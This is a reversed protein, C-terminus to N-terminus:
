LYLTQAACLVFCVNFKSIICAMKGDKIIINIIWRANADILFTSNQIPLIECLIIKLPAHGIIKLQLWALRTAALSSYRMLFRFLNLIRHFDNCEVHGNSQFTIKKYNLLYFFALCICSLPHYSPIKPGPWYFFEIWSKNNSIKKNDISKKCEYNLISYKRLWVSISNITVTTHVNDKM